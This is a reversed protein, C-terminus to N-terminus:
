YMENIEKKTFIGKGRLIPTLVKISMSWVFPAIKFCLKTTM